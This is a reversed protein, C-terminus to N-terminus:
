KLFLCKKYQCGKGRAKIQRENLLLDQHIQLGEFYIWILINILVVVRHHDLIIM